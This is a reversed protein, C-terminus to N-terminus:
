TWEARSKWIHDPQDHEEKPISSPTGCVLRARGDFTYWLAQWRAMHDRGKAELRGWSSRERVRPM